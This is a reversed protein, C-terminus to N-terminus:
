QVVTLNVVNYFTNPTVVDVATGNQALLLGTVAENVTNSIICNGGLSKQLVIAETANFITNSQIMNTGGNYVFIGAFSASIRNSKITNGSSGELLIGYSVFPGITNGTITVDTSTADLDIGRATSIVNNLVSSHLAGRLAVATEGTQVSNGTINATGGYQIVADVDFGHIENPGITVYSNESVIAEGCGSNENRVVDNQLYGATVGWTPDGGGVNSLFVGITRTALAPCTGGAGDIILNRVSVSQGATNLIALQAAVPGLNVSATNVVLGGAPVTIVAAGLNGNSIGKVTLAKTITVQEPYSGPCVLVTSGDTVAPDSVAASITAYHVPGPNCSPDGVVVTKALLNQASAALVVVFLGGVKLVKSLVKTRM